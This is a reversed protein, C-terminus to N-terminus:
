ILDKDKLTREVVRVLPIWDDTREIAEAITYGIRALWDSRNLALAVAVKEGTSQVVWADYGGRAADEAKDLFQRFQRNSGSIDM